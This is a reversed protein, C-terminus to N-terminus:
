PVSVVPHILFSKPPLLSMSPLPNPPPPWPLPLFRTLPQSSVGIGPALVAQPLPPSRNPTHQTQHPRQLGLTSSWAPAQGSTWIQPDDPRPSRPSHTLIWLSLPFWPILPSSSPRPGHALSPDGGGHGGLGKREGAPAEATGVPRQCQQRGNVGWLCGSGFHRGSRQGEM